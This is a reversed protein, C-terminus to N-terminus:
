LAKDFVVQTIRADAAPVAVLTGATALASAIALNVLNRRLARAATDRRNQSTTMTIERANVRVEYHHFENLKIDSKGSYRVARRKAHFVGRLGEIEVSEAREGEFMHASTGSSKTQEEREVLTLM